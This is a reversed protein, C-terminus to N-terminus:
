MKFEVQADTDLNSQEVSRDGLGIKSDDVVSSWDNEPDSRELQELADEYESHSVSSGNSDQFLVSHALKPSGM